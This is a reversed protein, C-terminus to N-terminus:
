AMVVEIAGRQHAPPGAVSGVLIRRAVEVEREVAGARHRNGSAADRAVHAGFEPGGAAISSSRRRRRPPPPCGRGGRAACPAGPARGVRSVGGRHQRDNGGQSELRCPEAIPPHALDELQPLHQQDASAASKSTAPPWRWWTERCSLRATRRSPTTGDGDSRATRRRDASMSCRRPGGASPVNARSTQARQAGDPPSRRSTDTCGRSCRNTGASAPRALGWCGTGRTRSCWGKREPRRQQRLATFLQLGQDVPVRFDQENTIVFTPTRDQRGSRHPSCRAFNRRATAAGRGPRRSEGSRSGCSRRPSRWPSSTSCGMM